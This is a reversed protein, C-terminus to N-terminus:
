EWGAVHKLALMTPPNILASLIDTKGAPAM